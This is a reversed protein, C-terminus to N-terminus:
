EIEVFEMGMVNCLNVFVLSKINMSEFMLARRGVTVVKIKSLDYTISNGNTYFVNLLYNDWEVNNFVDLLMESDDKELLEVM